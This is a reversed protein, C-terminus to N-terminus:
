KNAAKVCADLIRKIKEERKMTIINMFNMIDVGVQSSEIKKNLLDVTYINAGWGETVGNTLGRFLGKSKREGEPNTLNTAVIQLFILKIIFYIHTM